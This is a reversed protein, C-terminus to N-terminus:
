KDIIYRARARDSMREWKVLPFYVWQERRPDWVQLCVKGQHVCYM